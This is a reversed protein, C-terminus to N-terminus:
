PRGAKELLLECAPASLYSRCDLAANFGKVYEDDLQKDYSPSFAVGTGALLLLLVYIVQLRKM